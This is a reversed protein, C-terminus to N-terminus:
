PRVIVQKQGRIIVLTDHRKRRKIGKRKGKKRM